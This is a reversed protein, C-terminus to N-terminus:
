GAEESEPNLRARLDRIARHVSMKIAAESKGLIAGIEAMSLEGFVRLALAEARDPALAQMAAAVEAMQLQGLVIEEPSPTTAPLDAAAELPLLTRRARFHDAVKHQAIGLLWARFGHDGRYSTIHELAALFTQATLDQATSVDGTRALCYRYVRDLHRQYLLAFADGDRRAARALRDDDNDSSGAVADGPRRGPDDLTAHDSGM